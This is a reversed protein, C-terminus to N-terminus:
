YQKGQCTVSYELIQRQKRLKCLDSWSKKRHKFNAGISFTDISENLLVEEPEVTVWLYTGSNIEECTEPVPRM